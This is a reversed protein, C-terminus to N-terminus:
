VWADLGRGRLLWEFSPMCARVRLDDEESSGGGEYECAAEVGGDFVENGNLAGAVARVSRAPNPGPTHRRASRASQPRRLKWVPWPPPKPKSKVPKSKPIRPRGTKSSASPRARRSTL